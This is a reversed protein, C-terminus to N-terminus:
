GGTVGKPQFTGLILEYASRFCAHTMSVLELVNLMGEIGSCDNLTYLLKQEHDSSLLAVLADLYRHSTRPSDLIVAWLAGRHEVPQQLKDTYRSQHTTVAPIGSSSGMSDFPYLQLRAHSPSPLSPFPVHPHGNLCESRRIHRAVSIPDDKPLMTFESQPLVSGRRHLVARSSLWTRNLVTCTHSLARPGM